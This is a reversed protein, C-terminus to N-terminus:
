ARVLDDGAVPQDVLQPAIVCGLAGRVGECREDGSQAAYQGCVHERGSGAAILRADLGVRDVEVPELTEDLLSAACERCTGRGFRGVPAM